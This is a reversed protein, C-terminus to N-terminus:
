YNMVFGGKNIDRKRRAYIPAHKRLGHQEDYKVVWRTLRNNQEITDFEDRIRTVVTNIVNDVMEFVPGRANEFIADRVHRLVDHSVVIERGEPHVGQLNQTCKASITELTRPSFYDEFDEGPSFGIYRLEHDPAPGACPQGSFNRASLMRKHVQAGIFMYSFILLSSTGRASSSVAVLMDLCIPM